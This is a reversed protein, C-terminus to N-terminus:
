KDAWLIMSRHITHSGSNNYSEPLMKPASEKLSEKDIQTDTPPRDLGATVPASYLNNSTLIWLVTVTFFCITQKKLFVHRSITDHHSNRHTM